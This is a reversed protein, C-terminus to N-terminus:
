YGAFGRERFLAAAIPFQNRNFSGAALFQSEEVTLEMDPLWTQALACRAGAMAAQLLWLNRRRRPFTKGGDLVGDLVDGLVDSLVAPPLQSLAYAALIADPQRPGEVMALLFDRSQPDKRVALALLCRQRRPGHGTRDAEEM